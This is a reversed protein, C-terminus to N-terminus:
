RIKSQMVARTLAKDNKALNRFRKWGDIHLIDNEKAYTTCIIPDDAALVSLPEYTKEGTECDVLVNFKCGNWNLYTPKLPGQHGILTRFKFIMVLRTIGIPQVKWITCLNTIPSSKKWNGMALVLFIASNKFERGM